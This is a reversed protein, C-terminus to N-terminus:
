FVFMVSLCVCLCVHSFAIGCVFEHTTIVFHRSFRMLFSTACEYVFAYRAQSSPKVSKDWRLTSYASQEPINTVTLCRWSNRIRSWFRARRTASRFSSDNMSSRLALATLFLGTSRNRISKCCHFITTCYVSVARTLKANMMANQAHHNPLRTTLVDSKRSWPDLTRRRTM